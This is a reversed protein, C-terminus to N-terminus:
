DTPLHAMKPKCFEHRGPESRCHGVRCSARYLACERYIVVRRLHGGDSGPWNNNRFYWQWPKRRNPYAICVPITNIEWSRFSTPHHNWTKNAHVCAFHRAIQLATGRANACIQRKAGMYALSINEKTHQCQYKHTQRNWAITFRKNSLVFDKYCIWLM